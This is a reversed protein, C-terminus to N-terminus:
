NVPGNTLSSDDIFDEWKMRVANTRSENQSAELELEQAWAHKSKVTGEVVAIADPHAGNQICALYLSMKSDHDAPNIKLSRALRNITLSVGYRYCGRMHPFKREDYIDCLMRYIDCERLLEAFQEDESTTVPYQIIQAPADNPPYTKVYKRRADEISQPKRNDEM